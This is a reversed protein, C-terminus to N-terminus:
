GNQTWSARCNTCMVTTTMPEDSSRTQKDWSQTKKSGCKRCTYIGEMMTPPAVIFRSEQTDLFNSSAFAPANLGLFVASQSQVTPDNLCLREYQERAILAPPVNM